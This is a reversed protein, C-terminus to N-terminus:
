RRQEHIVVQEQLIRDRIRPHLSRYTLVDVERGLMEQLDLQLSVLDLLSKNGPLEVVFDIDSDKEIDGRAFSGFIAARVVDHRELVPLVQRRVEDLSMNM